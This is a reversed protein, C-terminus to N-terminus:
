RWPIVVEWVATAGKENMLETGKGYHEVQSRISPFKCSHM